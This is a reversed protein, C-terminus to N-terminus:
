DPLEKVGEIMPALFGIEAMRGGFYEAGELTWHGYDFFLVNEAPDLVDCRSRDANCLFELKDFFLLHNATSVRELEGNILDVDQKRFEAVYADLGEIRGFGLALKPVDRFEATRGLIAVEANGQRGVYEVFGGLYIFNELEWRTSYLIWDADGPLPSARFEGVESICLAERGPDLPPVKEAGVLLYLCNDDLSLRRVDVAPYVSQNLYVANFFDKSHSDGVVLVRVSTAERQDFTNRNAGARDDVYKWTEQRKTEHHVSIELFSEPVDWRWPWGQGKWVLGALACLLITSTASAKLFASPTSLLAGPRPNRLPSEVYRHLLFALAFAAVIAMLRAYLSFDMAVYRYLVVIPWHVLYLSYSISGIWVALSNRLLLGAYRARGAYIVLAAGASPLLARFSPFLTHEDFSVVSYSILVVGAILLAELVWGRAWRFDAVFVLLAGIGFEFVRAPAMYFATSSDAQLWHLGLLFSLGSVLTVAMPLWYRGKLTSVLVIMGPWVLYFQEEVSLSWTHLLPKTIADADFYGSESWFFINSVWAVSSILAQSLRELHYPVLLFIAGLFTILLTAFLAPFLRRARRLYFEGFRFEGSSVDKRILRTILFGSIVFFVDVGVFGGSFPPIDAHFLLVSVVAVARLGDVEPRYDTKAM